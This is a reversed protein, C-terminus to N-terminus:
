ILRHGVGYYPYGYPNSIRLRRSPDWICYGSVTVSLFSHWGAYSPELSGEVGQLAEVLRRQGITHTQM